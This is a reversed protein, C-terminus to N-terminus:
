RPFPQSLDRTLLYNYRFDTWTYGQERLVRGLEKRVGNWGQIEGLPEHPFLERRAKFMETEKGWWPSIKNHYDLESDQSRGPYQRKGEFSQRYDCLFVEFCYNDLQIDFEEDMRKLSDEVTQTVRQLTTEDEGELLGEAREPWLLALARRPSWADAPRIDPMPLSIDECYRNYFELLKFGSYRGLGYVMKQSTKWMEEYLERGELILIAPLMNSAFEAYSRLFKALKIPSRVCRRERRFAIGKWNQQLWDELVTGREPVSPWPWHKWLAEATPVNYVGVYCGARWIKEEPSCNRSMHGVLRMHPDPGGAMTEYKCFEAFFRWHSKSDM